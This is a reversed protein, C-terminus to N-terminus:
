NIDKKDDDKNGSYISNLSTIKSYPDSKTPLDIVEINMNDVFSDFINMTNNLKEIQLLLNSLKSNLEKWHGSEFVVENIMKKMYSKM